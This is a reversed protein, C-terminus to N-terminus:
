GIMNLVQILRKNQLATGISVRICNKLGARDSMNRLYIKSNACYVMVKKADEVQILLFNAESSWVKRVIDLQSLWKQMQAKQDKIMAIKQSLERVRDKTTAKVAADLTLSSMSYPPQIAKLCRICAENAIIVGFRIGALGFAKSLTRLVVLNHYQQLYPISSESEAFEIYAEDVVVIGKDKMEDCLKAIDSIPVINGTPNNPSCIFIIKTNDTMKQKIGNVDLSFEKDLILPVEIIQSGQIKAFAAYMSFTPPCILINDRFPNCFLRTLLDIGDDSGRTILLQEKEICYFSALQELLSLPHMSPYRNLKLGMQNDSLDFPLENADLWIGESDERNSLYPECDRLDQRILKIIDAM